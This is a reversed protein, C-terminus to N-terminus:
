PAKVPPNVKVSLGERLSGVAGTIITSDAEVGSIGVWTDNSGESHGRLGLGVSRYVVKGNVVTQVYAQARETRVASLPVALVQAQDTNIMGQVFQGHRLGPATPVSLYVMVSRSVSQTSPSIRVVKAQGPLEQGEVQVRAIQGVRLSLVDAASMPVEIELRGLDVLELVKADIALREGPQALRASVQGQIPSRLVADELSKAAVEAASLAAKHSAQAGQLTALSTELATKSIFGQDVLAQNNDFQRQAIDIQAKAADAQDKFQQLRRLYETPEIRALVQGARVPDGERVVLDMLEGAVRAKIVASQIAKISGTFPVGVMLPKQALPMVDGPALEYVMEVMAPSPAPPAVNRSKFTWWAALAALVGLGILSRTLTNNM